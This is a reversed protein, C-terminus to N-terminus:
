STYKLGVSGSNQGGINSTQKQPSRKEALNLAGRRRHGGANVNQGDIDLSQNVTHYQNTHQLSTSNPTLHTSNGPQFCVCILFNAM